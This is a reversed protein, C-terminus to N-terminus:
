IIKAFICFLRLVAYYYCPIKKTITFVLTKKNSLHSLFTYPKDVIPDNTSLFKDMTMFIVKRESSLCSPYLTKVWSFDHAILKKKEPKTRALKNIELELDRRFKPEYVVRIDKLSQVLLDKPYNGDSEDKKYELVKLRLNKFSEKKKLSDPIKLDIEENLLNDLVCEYNPFLRLVSNNFLELDDNLTKDDIRRKSKYILYVCVYIFAVYAFFGLTVYINHDFWKCLYSLITYLFTCIM